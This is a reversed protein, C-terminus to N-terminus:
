HMIGFQIVINTVTDNRGTLEYKIKLSDMMVGAYGGDPFLYRVHFTSSRFTEDGRAKKGNGAGAAIYIKALRVMLEATNLRLSQSNDLSGFKNDRFDIYYRAGIDAYDSVALGAQAGLAYGLGAFYRSGSSKYNAGSLTTHVGLYDGLRLRNHQGDLLTDAYSGNIALDVGYMTGASSADAFDSKVTQYNPGLSFDQFPLGSEAQAGGAALVLLAAIITITRM